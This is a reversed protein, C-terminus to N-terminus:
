DSIRGKRIEKKRAALIREYNRKGGDLPMRWPKYKFDPDSDFVKVGFRGLFRRKEDIIAELSAEDLEELM